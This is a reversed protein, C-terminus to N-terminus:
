VRAVRQGDLHPDVAVVCHEAGLGLVAVRDDVLSEERELRLRRPSERPDYLRPEMGSSTWTWAGCSSLSVSCPLWPGTELRSRIKSIVATSRSDTAVSPM